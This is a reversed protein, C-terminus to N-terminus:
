YQIADISQHFMMNLFILDLNLKNSDILVTIASIKAPHLKRLDASKLSKANKNECILM